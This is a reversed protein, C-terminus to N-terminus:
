FKQIFNKVHSIKPYSKQIFNVGSLILVAVAPANSWDKIKRAASSLHKTIM